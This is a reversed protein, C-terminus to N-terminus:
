NESNKAALLLFISDETTVEIEDTSDLQKGVELTMKLKLEELPDKKDPNDKKYRQYHSYSSACNIIGTVTTDKRIVLSDDRRNINYPLKLDHYRNDLLDIQKAIYPKLPGSFLENFLRNLGSHLKGQYYIKPLSYGIVALCGSPKLIRDVEECFKDFDLWHVAQACTVLDVSSPDVPINQEDGFKYVINHKNMTSHRACQLQAESVDVGIVNKFSSALDRTLQGTGCGIDVASEFGDNLKCNDKMFQTISDILQQPYTPRYKDYLSAHEVGEFLRTAM